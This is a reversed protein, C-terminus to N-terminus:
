DIGYPSIEKKIEDRTENNTRSQSSSEAKDVKGTDPKSKKNKFGWSKKPAPANTKESIPIQDHSPEHSDNKRKKKISLFFPICFLMGLMFSSFATLFVPIEGFTTFGFSVDSRNDLNFVIFALFLAFIVIFVILRWMSFELFFNFCNWQRLAFLIEGFLLFPLSGSLVWREPAVQFRLWKM